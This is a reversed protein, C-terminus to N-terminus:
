VTDNTRKFAVYVGDPSFAFGGDGGGDARPSPHTLPRVHAGSADAVWLSSKDGSRVRLLVLHRGDPTWTAAGTRWGRAQALETERGTAVDVLFAKSDQEVLVMAARPPAGSTGSATAIM